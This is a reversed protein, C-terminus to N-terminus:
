HAEAAASMRDSLEKLLRLDQPDRSNKVTVRHFAEQEERSAADWVRNVARMIASDAPLVEGTKPDM